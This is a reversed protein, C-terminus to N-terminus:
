KIKNKNADIKISILYFTFGPYYINYFLKFVRRITIHSDAWVGSRM